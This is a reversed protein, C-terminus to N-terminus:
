HQEEWWANDKRDHAFMNEVELRERRRNRGMFVLRVVGGAIAAAGVIGLVVEM